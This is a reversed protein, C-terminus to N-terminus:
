SRGRIVSIKPRSESESLESRSSFVSGDYWGDGPRLEFRVAGKGTRVEKNQIQISWPKCASHNRLAAYDKPSRM